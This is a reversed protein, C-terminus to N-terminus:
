QTVVDVLRSNDTMCLKNYFLWIKFAVSSGQGV